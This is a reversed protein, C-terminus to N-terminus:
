ESMKENQCERKLCKPMRVNEKLVNQWKALKGNQWKAMKGNQWESMKDNQCKTM